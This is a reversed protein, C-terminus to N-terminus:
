CTGAQARTHHQVCGWIRVGEPHKSVTVISRAGTLAATSEDFAGEREFPGMLAGLLGKATDAVGALVGGAASGVAAPAAAAATVAPASSHLLPRSCSKESMRNCGQQMSRIRMLVAKSGTVAQIPQLTLLTTQIRMCEM